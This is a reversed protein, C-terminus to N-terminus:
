RSSPVPERWPPASGPLSPKSPYHIHFFAGPKPANKQMLAENELPARLTASTPTITTGSLRGGADVYGAQTLNDQHVANALSVRLKNKPNFKWRGYPDLSRKPM